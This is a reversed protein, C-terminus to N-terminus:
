QGSTGCSAGRHNWQPGYWHGNRGAVGEHQLWGLPIWTCRTDDSLEALTGTQWLTDEVDDMSTDVRDVEDAVFRSDLGDREDAAVDCALVDVVASTCVSLSDLRVKSGLTLTSAPAPTGEVKEERAVRMFSGLSIDVEADKRRGSWAMMMGSALGWNASLLM